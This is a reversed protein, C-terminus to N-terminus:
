RAGGFRIPLRFCGHVGPTPMARPIVCERAARDLLPNGSSAVIEIRGAGGADDVCFGVTVDGSLRMRQAQPPYCGRAALALKQALLADDSASGGTNSTPVPAAM